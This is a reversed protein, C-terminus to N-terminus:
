VWLECKCLNSFNLHCTCHPLTVLYQVVVIIINEKGKLIQKILKQKNTEKPPPRKKKRPETVM